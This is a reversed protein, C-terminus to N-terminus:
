SLSCARLQSNRLMAEMDLEKLTQQNVVPILPPILPSRLAEVPAPAVAFDDAKPRAAQAQELTWGFDEIDSAVRSPSVGQLDYMSSSPLTSLRRPRKRSSTARKTSWSTTPSTASLRPAKVNMSPPRNPSDVVSAILPEAIDDDEAGADAAKRKRDHM